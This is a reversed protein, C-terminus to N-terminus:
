KVRKAKQPVWLTWAWKLIESNSQAALEYQYATVQSAAATQEVGQRQSQKEDKLLM